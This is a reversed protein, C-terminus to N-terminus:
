QRGGSSVPVATCELVIAGALALPLLYSLEELILHYDLQRPPHPLLLMEDWDVRLIGKVCETM